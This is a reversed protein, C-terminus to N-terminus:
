LLVELLLMKRQEKCISVYVNWREQNEITLYDILRDKPIRILRGVRVSVIQKQAILKRVTKSTVGLIGAVDEVNLVAPYNELYHEM